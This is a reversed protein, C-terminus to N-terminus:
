PLPTLLASPAALPEAGKGESFVGWAHFAADHKEIQAPSLVHTGKPAPATGAAIAELTPRLDAIPRRVRPTNSSAHKPRPRGLECEATERDRPVRRTASQHQETRM